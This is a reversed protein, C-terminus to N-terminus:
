VLEPPQLFVKPKLSNVKRDNLISFKVKQFGEFDIILPISYISPISKVENLSSHSEEESMNFFYSTDVSDDIVSVITPTTLFLIFIILVIKSM